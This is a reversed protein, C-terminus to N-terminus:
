WLLFGNVSEISGLLLYWKSFFGATPPIGIMGLAAITLAGITWPMSRGLGQFDSINWIGTHHRIGGAILFLSGKMLSHAMIHFIGGAIGLPNALGIGLGVYAIQAVSSYALM